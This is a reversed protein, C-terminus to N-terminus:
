QAEYAISNSDSDRCYVFYKDSVYWSYSKSGIVNREIDTDSLNEWFHYTHTKSSPKWKLENGTISWTGYETQNYDSNDGVARKICTGNKKFDITYTFNNNKKIWTHATLMGELSKDKKCSSVSVGIITATIVVALIIALTIILPKKNKQISTKSQGAPPTTDNNIKIGCKPCFTANGEIQSGCKECFM